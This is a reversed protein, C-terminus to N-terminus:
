SVRLTEVFMVADADAVGERRLSRYAGAMMALALVVAIYAGAQRGVAAGDPGIGPVDLFVRVLLWVVLLLSLGLEIAALSAPLAPARQTAALWWILAGLAAVILAFPSLVSFSQWGNAQTGVHLIVPGPSHPIVRSHLHPYYHVVSLPPYSWWGGIIHFWPVAFLDVILAASAIGLLWEGSTLRSIRFRM